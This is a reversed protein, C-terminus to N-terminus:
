HLKRKKEPGGEQPGLELSSYYKGDPLYVRVEDVNSMGIAAAFKHLLIPLDGTNAVPKAISGETDYPSEFGEIPEWKIKTFIM